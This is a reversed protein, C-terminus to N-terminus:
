FRQAKNTQYVIHRIRDGDQVPWLVVGIEEALVM